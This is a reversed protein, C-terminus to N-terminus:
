VEAPRSTTWPLRNPTASSFFMQDGTEVDHTAHQAVCIGAPTARLARARGDSPHYDRRILEKTQLARLVQSTMM